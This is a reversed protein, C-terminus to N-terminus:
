ANVVIPVVVQAEAPAIQRNRIRKAAAYEGPVALIHRAVPLEGALQAQYAVTIEELLIELEFPVGELVFAGIEIQMPDDAVAAKLDRAFHAGVAEDGIGLPQRAAIM